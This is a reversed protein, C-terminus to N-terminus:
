GKKEFDCPLGRSSSLRTKLLIIKVLRLPNRQRSTGLFYPGCLISQRFDSLFRVLAETVFSSASDPFSQRRVVWRSLTAHDFQVDREAMIEVLDRHSVGFRVYFYVAFLIVSRPYHMGKFSIM